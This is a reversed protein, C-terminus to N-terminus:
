ELPLDGNLSRQELTLKTTGGVNIMGKAYIAGTLDIDGSVIMPGGSWFIAKGKISNSLISKGAIFAVDAFATSSASFSGVNNIGGASAVTSIGFLSSGTMLTFSGLPNLAYLKSNEANLIGKVAITGAVVVSDKITLTGNFTVSSSADLILRKNKLLVGQNVVLNGTVVVCDSTGFLQNFEAPTAIIRSVTSVTNSCIGAAKAALAPVDPTAVSPDNPTITAGALLTQARAATITASSTIGNGVKRTPVSGELKNTYDKTFGLPSNVGETTDYYKVQPFEIGHNAFVYFPDVEFPGGIGNLGLEQVDFIFEFRNTGKIVKYDSQGTITNNKIQPTGDAAKLNMNAHWTLAEPFSARSDISVTIGIKDYLGNGNTDIGRDSIFRENEFYPGDFDKLKYPKTYGADGINQVLHDVIGDYVGNDPEWAHIFHIIKYPGDVGVNKVIDEVSISISAFKMDKTFSYQDPYISVYKKNSGELDARIISPGEREVWEIPVKFVLRDILGDENDDQAIEESIKPTIFATKRYVVFITYGGLELDEKGVTANVKSFAVYSTPPLSPVLASYLGDGAKADGNTANGNDYLKVTQKHQSGDELFNVVEVQAEPALPLGPAEAYLSMLIPKGEIQNYDIQLTSSPAPKSEPLLTGDLSYELVALSNPTKPTATSLELTWAGTVPQNLTISSYVTGNNATSTSFTGGFAWPTDTPFIDGQPTRLVFKIDPDAGLTLHLANMGPPVVIKQTLKPQGENLRIYVTKIEPSLNATKTNTPDPNNDGVALASTLLLVAIGLGLWVGKSSHAIAHQTSRKQVFFKKM